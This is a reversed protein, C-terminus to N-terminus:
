LNALFFKDTQQFINIKNIWIHIPCMIMLLKTVWIIQGLFYHYTQWVLENNVMNDHQDNHDQNHNQKEYVHDDLDSRSLWMNKIIMPIM